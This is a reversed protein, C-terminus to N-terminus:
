LGSWRLPKHKWGLALPVVVLAALALLWTGYSKDLGEPHLLHLILGAACGAVWAVIFGISNM